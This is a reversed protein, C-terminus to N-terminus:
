NSVSQMPVFRYGAGERVVTGIGPASVHVGAVVLGERAILDLLRLRTDRALDPDLDYKVATEPLPFQIAAFHVVDGWAMLDPGGTEIRWCTHGPTHGPALLPSCGLFSEGDRMLRIRDRYPKVDAQNRARRRKVHDSEGERPEGMWFSFEVEHVLLAANPFVANMDEDILGDAHDPHLHTLLVHTISEPPYGAASLGAPLRGLTAQMKTGSGGDILLRAGEREFVFNNVPITLVDDDPADSIRRATDRDLGMVYDLSSRLTGDSICVVELDGIKYRRSM